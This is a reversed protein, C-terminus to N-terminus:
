VWWRAGERGGTGALGACTIFSLAGVATDAVTVARVQQELRTGAALKDEVAALGALLLVPLRPFVLAETHRYAVSLRVLDFFYM